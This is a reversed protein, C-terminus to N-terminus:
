GTSARMPWRRSEASRAPWSRSSAPWTPPWSCATSTPRSATSAGRRPIASTAAWACAASRRGSTSSTTRTASSRCARISATSRSPSCTSTRWRSSRCPSGPWGDSRPLSCAARTSSWTPGSRRSARRRPGRDRRDRSRPGHRDRRGTDADPHPRRAVTRGGGARQGPRVPRALRRDAPVARGPCGRDVDAPVPGAGRGRRDARDAARLDEGLRGPTPAGRAAGPQVRPSALRGRAVSSRGRDRSGTRPVARRRGDDDQDPDGLRPAPRGAGGFPLDLRVHARSARRPRRRDLRPPRPPLRDVDRRRRRRHGGSPRARGDALVSGQEREPGRRCRLRQAVSRHPPGIAGVISCTMAATGPQAPRESRGSRIWAPRVFVFQRTSTSPVGNKTRIGPAAVSSSATSRALSSCLVRAAASAPTAGATTWEIGSHSTNTSSHSAAVVIDFSVSLRGPM